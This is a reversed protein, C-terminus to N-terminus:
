SSYIWTIQDSTIVYRFELKAQSAVTILSHFTSVDSNLDLQWVGKALLQSTASKLEPTGIQGVFQEWPTIPIEKSGPALSIMFLVYM